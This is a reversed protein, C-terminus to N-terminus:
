WKVLTRFVKTVKLWIMLCLLEIFNDLSFIYLIAIMQCYWQPIGMLNFTIVEKSIASAIADASTNTGTWRYSIARLYSIWCCCVSNLLSSYNYKARILRKKYFLDFIWKTFIFDSSLISFFNVSIQSNWGHFFKKKSFKFKERRGFRSYKEFM